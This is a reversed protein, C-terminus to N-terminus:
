QIIILVVCNKSVVYQFNLKLMKMSIESMRKIMSEQAFIFLEGISWQHFNKNRM